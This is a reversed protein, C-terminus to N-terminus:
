SLAQPAAQRAKPHATGDCMSGQGSTSRGHRRYRFERWRSSRLPSAIGM